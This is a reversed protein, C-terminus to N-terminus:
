LKFNLHVSSRIYVQIRILKGEPDRQPMRIEDKVRSISENLHFPM